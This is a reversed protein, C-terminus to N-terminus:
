QAEEAHSAATQHHRLHHPKVVSDDAPCVLARYVEVGHVHHVEIFGAQLNQDSGVRWNFQRNFDTNIQLSIERVPRLSLSSPLIKLKESNNSFKGETFKIIEIATTWVEHRVGGDSRRVRANLVEVSTEEISLSSAENYFDFIQVVGTQAGEQRDLM